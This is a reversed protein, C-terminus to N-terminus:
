EGLGECAALARRVQPFAQWDGRLDEPLEGEIREIEARLARAAERSATEDKLARVRATRLMLVATPGGPVSRALGADAHALALEPRGALDALEALLAEAITEQAAVHKRLSRAELVAEYARWAAEPDDRRSLGISARAVFSAYGWTVPWEPALLERERASVDEPVPGFAALWIQGVLPWDMFVHREERFPSLALEALAEQAAGFAGFSALTHVHTRLANIAHQRSGLRRAADLSSRVRALCRGDAIWHLWAGFYIDREAIFEIDREPDVPTAQIIQAVEACQEIQEFTVLSIMAITSARIWERSTGPLRGRAKLKEIVPGIGDFRGIYLQITAQWAELLLRSDSGESFRSWDLRAFGELAEGLRGLIVLAALRLLVLNALTDPAEAQLEGEQALAITGLADGIQEAERAAALFWEAAAGRAGGLALHRAVANAAAGKRTALWRGAAAHAAARDGESLSEYVAGQLLSHRFLWGRGRDSAPLVLEERSLAELAERTAEDSTTEGLLALIGEEDFREGFVSASRLVRRMEWPLARVRGQILALASGLSADWAGGKAAARLVEELLLANGGAIKVVREVEAPPVASGLVHRVLREAARPGIPGLRVATVGKLDFVGTKNTEGVPWTTALLFISRNTLRAWAAQLLGITMGDAWHLDEIALLLPSSTAEADLWATLANLLEARMEIANVRASVLTTGAVPPPAGAAEGLLEITDEIQRAGVAEFRLRLAGSLKEWRRPPPDGQELGVADELWARLTSAPASSGAVDCRATIVRLPGRERLRAVFERRVRSKGMGQAAILAVGRPAGEDACEEWSGDLLRLEKERGVCPTPSGLLPRDDDRAPSYGRLISKGQENDVDFSAELLSAVLPDVSVGAGTAPETLQTAGSVERIASSGGTTEAQALTLAVLSTPSAAVVELAARAARTVLDRVGNGESFAMLAVGGALASARGGWRQAAAEAASTLLGLADGALTAEPNLALERPAVCVVAIPSREISLAPRSRQPGQPSGDLTADIADFRALEALAAAGDAPREARSRAMWSSVLADLAPPVEPWRDSVLPLRGHLVRALVAIVQDGPFAPEGTLCEYLVAGLSFVDVRADVDERGEIQEPAMYGATGLIAGTRTLARTRAHARAIGFDILKVRAPEGDVLFLNAPKIDRHIIGAAHAVALGEACRRALAFVEVRSLSGRRLRAALDEGQLWEMAIWAEGQPSAGFAICHVIADSRLASLVRAEALFREALMRDDTAQLKVAVARGTQLDTSRFVEGM